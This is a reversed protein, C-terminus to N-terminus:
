CFDNVSFYICFNLGFFEFFIDDVLDRQSYIQALIKGFTLEILAYKTEATQNLAM